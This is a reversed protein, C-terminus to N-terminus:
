SELIRTANADLWAELEAVAIMKRKGRRVIRIEPAVHESFFDHGVSLSECAEAITLALKPARQRKAATPASM